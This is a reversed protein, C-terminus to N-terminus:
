RNRGPIHPVRVNVAEVVRHFAIAARRNVEAVVDASEAEYLHFCTEDEPVFVARLYQVRRGEQTLERASARARGAGNSLEDPGCLEPEYVEVLYRRLPQQRARM